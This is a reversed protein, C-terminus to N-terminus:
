TVLKARTRAPPLVSLTLFAPVCAHRTGFEYRVAVDCNGRLYDNFSRIRERANLRRARDNKERKNRFCCALM